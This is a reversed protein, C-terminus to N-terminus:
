TRINVPSVLEDFYLNNEHIAVARIVCIMKRMVAGIASMKSKGRAVLTGYFRAFGNNGGIAALSALYLAQRIAPNGEKCLRTRGRVSKGSEVIKPSLGCFAAVKRSSSFRRIDGLEAVVTVATIFGVGPIEQISGVLKRLGPFSELHKRIADEINGINKEIDRILKDRSKAIEKVDTPEQKQLKATTLAEVLSRRQRVLSRLIRYEETEPVFAAPRREAGFLALVASDISDTKNRIKHSRAFAHVKKPDAIAPACEPFKGTIQCALELSYSGTAEMVCRLTIASGSNRSKRYEAGIKEAWNRFDDVGDANRAFSARPLRCDSFSECVEQGPLCASVDFSSKAVDLGFWVEEKVGDFSKNRMEQGRENQAMYKFFTGAFGNKSRFRAKDGLIAFATKLPARSRFVSQIKTVPHKREWPVFCTGGEAKKNRADRSCFAGYIHYCQLSKDPPM